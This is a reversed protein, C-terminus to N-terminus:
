AALHAAEKASSVKLKSGRRGLGCKGIGRARWAVVRAMASATVAYIGVNTKASVGGRRANRASSAEALANNVVGARLARRHLVRRM